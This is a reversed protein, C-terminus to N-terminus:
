ILNTDARGIEGTNLTFNSIGSATSTQLPLTQNTARTNYAAAELRVKDRLFGIEVGVEASADKEPMLGTQVNTNSLSYGNITNYPYGSGVNATPYIYYAGFNSLPIGLNQNAGNLGGGGGAGILYGFSSWNAISVNGTIAYGGRVKLFSLVKSNKISNIKDSLVVSVDAGYYNFSRTKPDLISLWDNRFSGHAFIWDQYGVTLDAYVSQSRSKYSLTQTASGDPNTVKTYGSPIAIFNTAQNSYWYGTSNQARYNVGPIFTFHFDSVDRKITFFADTNIDELTTKIVESQYPFSAYSAATGGSGWPDRTPSSAFVGYNYTPFSASDIYSPADTTRKNYGGRATFSLWDLLKYNLQLNGIFNHNTQKARSHYVQYWPNPYYGNIYGQLSSFYDNDVDKVAALDINPPQNIVNWYVPRYQNGGTFGLGAQDVQQASYTIGGSATFRGLNLSGNGTVTNRIYKDNLVVGKNIVNQGSVYFTGIRGGKTLSLDNQETLGTQFFNRRGNKVAAYPGYKINGNADPGGIAIQNFPFDLSNYAPGFNQNEFPVPLPSGSLPDIYNVCGVCGGNIDPNNYGGGEGGNPAYQSQLKPMYSVKDVMTSNRYNITLQGKTGHKTTLIMVGNAAEKGYLAAANSGKLINVSEIDDPNLAAVYSQDVPNGDVIVLATNNGMISRSGRLTIKVQPNVSNNTLRIDVGSAKGALGAALNTVRAQTLEATNIRATSYGLEKPQRRIGLATVVVESLNQSQRALSITLKSTSTVTVERQPIGVSSVVLVDGTKADIRFDGNADASTGNSTGKIIISAGSIPQGGEDVVRGTIPRTQAVALMSVLLLM